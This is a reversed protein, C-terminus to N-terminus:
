LNYGFLSTDPLSDIVAEIIEISHAVDSLSVTEVPSHMYRCPVSINATHFGRIDRYSQLSSCDTGGYVFRGLSTQLSINRASAVSKIFQRMVSSNDSKRLVGPGRQLYLRGMQDEHHYPIDTAYDVDLVIVADPKYQFDFALAGRLGVEEQVTAVCTLNVPVDNKSYWRLVEGIVFLGVRDDLATAIIFDGDINFAPTLVALDGTDILHCNDVNPVDIWLDEFVLGKPQAFQSTADFGVVGRFTDGYENIVTVKQGLLMHPSCGISRFKYKGNGVSQTIQICITDSHAVLALTPYAANKRISFEMNGMADLKSTVGPMVSCWDKNLFSMMNHEQMSPSIIEILSTLRKISEDSLKQM